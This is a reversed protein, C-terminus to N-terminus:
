LTDEAQDLLDMSNELRDMVEELEIFLKDYKHGPPVSEYVEKVLRRAQRLNDMEMSVNVPEM